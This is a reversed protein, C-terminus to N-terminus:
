RGPMGLSFAKAMKVSPAPVCHSRSKADANTSKILSRGKSLLSGSSAIDQRFAFGNERGFFPLPEFPQPADDDHTRADETEEDAQRKDDAEKDGGGLGFLVGLVADAYGIGNASTAVFKPRASRQHGMAGERMAGEAM